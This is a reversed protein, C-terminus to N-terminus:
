TLDYSKTFDSIKDAKWIKRSILQFVQWLTYIDHNKKWESKIFKPDVLLELDVMKALKPAIFKTSESGRFKSFHCIKSKLFAWFQNWTFDSHCFFRLSEVSHGLLWICQYKQNVKSSSQNRTLFFNSNPFTFDAM